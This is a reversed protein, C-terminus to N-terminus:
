NDPEISAGCLTPALEILRDALSDWTFRVKQEQVYQRMGALQARALSRITEAMDDVSGPSILFGSKGEEIVDPFAGTRTALVPCGYHFAMATVGSGSASRYPLVVLDARGFFNAATQDDVYNLHLEVNPAHANEIRKRLEDPPCWPEGVVTLHVQPDSIQALADILVDLGKYPRIFGFFLLELRGRKPLRTSPSPFQDFLPVPHTIVTKGPFTSELSAAQETSHVLFADSQSLLSCALKRKLLSADHDFLNHCLFAVRVGRRRLERAMLATAPAWFLTWWDFLVLECHSAKIYHTARRWSMPNLCDLVYDVGPERYTAQDPERDSKGPYLWAPYQRHYSITRLLCRAALARHLRTTYQAIGGRFPRVPGVLAVRPHDTATAQLGTAASEGNMGSLNM